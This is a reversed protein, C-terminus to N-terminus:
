NYWSIRWVLAKGRVGTVLIKGDPSFAVSYVKRGDKEKFLEPIESFDVDEFTTSDVLRVENLKGLALLNDKSNLAFSHTEKLVTLLDRTKYDLIFLEKTSHADEYVVFVNCAIFRKDSDVEVSEIGYTTRQNKILEVSDVKEGSEVDFVDLFRGAGCFLERGDPSFVLPAEWSVENIWIIERSKSDLMAVYRRRKTDEDETFMVAINGNEPMVKFDHLEGLIFVGCIKGTEIDIFDAKGSHNNVRVVRRGDPLMELSSVSLDHELKWLLRWSETDFCRTFYGCVTILRKGDKSFKLNDVYFPSSLEHELIKILKM